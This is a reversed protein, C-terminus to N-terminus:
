RLLQSVPSAMAIGLALLGMGIALHSLWRGRGAIDWRLAKFEGIAGFACTFVAPSAVISRAYAPLVWLLLLDVLGLGFGLWAWYNHAKPWGYATWPKASSSRRRRRPSYTYPIPPPFPMNLPPRNIPAPPRRSRKPPPRLHEGRKVADLSPFPDRGGLLKARECWPCSTLHNGYIHQDNVWCAVLANEAEELAWQWSQTDPRLTPNLHGDQFCRIFLHQLIPNLGAFPPAAPVPGYPVRPSNAHPFHGAAIRKEYPPPDGQGAYAGAFPHTGEMLLQFVIVGLGFLDHGPQRDLQAFSKGQLEPPTFEPKGVRCRYTVGKDGDWVQFSDTDVLTVLARESVLINSENVDGIVYGREHLARVATVFNRATRHLYFYNFLPCSERRSKPNFFDIIRRMEAVRPMLFGVIAAQRGAIRLLDLPWAISSHKQAAMPDTPPYAAMVRLKAAREPTPQHYVKAVLSPEDPLSYIRAEGGVALILKESLNIARGNSQRELRV